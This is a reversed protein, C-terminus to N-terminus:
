MKMDNELFFNRELGYDIGHKANPLSLIGKGQVLKKSSKAMYITTGMTRSIMKASWDPPLLTLIQLKNAKNTENRHFKEKLTHILEGFHCADRKM